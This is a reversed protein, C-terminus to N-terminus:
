PLCQYRSEYINAKVTSETKWFWKQQITFSARRSIYIQKSGQYQAITTQKKGYLVLFSIECLRWDVM